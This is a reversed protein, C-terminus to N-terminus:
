RCVPEVAAQLATIDAWTGDVAPLGSVSGASLINQSTMLLVVVTDIQARVEDPPDAQQMAQAEAYFQTALTTATAVDGQSVAAGFVGWSATVDISFVYYSLCFPEPQSADSPM